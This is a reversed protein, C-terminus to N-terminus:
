KMPTVFEEVNSIVTFIKEDNNLQVIETIM